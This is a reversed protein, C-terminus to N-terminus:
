YRDDYRDRQERRRRAERRRKRRRSEAIGSIVLGIVIVVILVIIGIFVYRMFSIEGDEDKEYALSRTETYGCVSCVGQETGDAKRTAETVVTWEMSHPAEQSKEGCACEHWHKDGDKSWSEAFEHVHEDEADPKATAAPTETPKPTASPKPTATPKPTEAVKVKISAANSVASGGPGSFTCKVTWGDMEAPVNRINMKEKGDGGISVGPFLDPLDDCKCTTKGDPSTATWEYTDTYTAMAVFSALEGEKVNETTPHKYISPAWLQADYNRYLTLSSSDNMVYDVSSNNLYVAVGDAFYYGEAANVTIEVRYTGAEFVGDAPSGNSDYWGYSALYCGETSTAATISYVGDMAVPVNSLTTLVKGIEGEASAETPILGCIGLCLLLSLLGALARKQITTM